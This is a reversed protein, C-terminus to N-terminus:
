EAPRRVREREGHEASEREAAGEPETGRESTDGATEDRATTGAEDMMTERGNAM